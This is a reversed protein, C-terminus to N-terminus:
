PRELFSRLRASVAPWEAALVSFMATNRVIGDAAPLHSRLIGEFRGGLREIAARSRRNREDTKLVLRHVRWTEFGHTMLLLCAATNIATRQVAPALWAHGIEAVDPPDGADARRPEGAVRVPGAPWSWWELNMLRISGVVVGTAPVITAFPLARGARQAALAQEVYGVMEARDRPVPALDFTTRDATAARVLADVHDLSLPELRVHRNELAPRPSLAPATM